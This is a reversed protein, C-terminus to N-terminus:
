KGSGEDPGKPLLSRLAALDRGCRRYADKFADGEVGHYYDPPVANLQYNHALTHFMQVFKLPVNVMGEPAQWKEGLLETLRSELAAKRTKYVPSYPGKPGSGSYCLAVVDEMVEAVLPNEGSKSM